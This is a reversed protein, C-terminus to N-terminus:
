PALVAGYFRSAFSGADADVFEWITGTFTHTQLPVWTHLDTSAMVTVEQGPFADVNFRLVGGSLTLSAGDIVPPQLSPTVTLKQPAYLYRNNAGDNLRACVSYSGPPVAAADVTVTPPALSVASPGTRPLTEDDVAIENGNYPNFDPDLFIELAIDGVTGAGAQYYLTTDISQGAPITNTSGLAFLIPNPWLGSDAPLATRNPGVGGGLDWNKNFGDSIMGNGTGGPEVNSLRNGGGILSYLFGASAGAIETSTWWTSRQTATITAQTDSTPTTLDITGHYWLHVDSHSSTYGGNLDLLKRNYAGFVAQGNPVTIGNGLHQWFNDAFLVNTWTTVAADGLASVPDPDLTTVQDVWIGQAGLLRAMETIVSGGRSHGILHLPLETLRLGGMAPILNPDLLANVTTQAVQTSSAGGVNSLTSWDLKILIEGSDTTLPPSGGLFTAAYLYQGSGNRTISIEYCSYTSGPFTSYGPIKGAMPIIWSTVDSAFGHTIITVGGATVSGISFLSLVLAGFLCRWPLSIRTRTM